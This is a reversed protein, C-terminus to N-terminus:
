EEPEVKYKPHALLRRITTPPRRATAVGYKNLVRDVRESVGQVYPIVVQSRYNKDKRRTDTKKSKKNNMVNKDLGLVSLRM